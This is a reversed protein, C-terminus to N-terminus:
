FAGAWGGMRSSRSRARALRRLGLRGAACCGAVLGAAGPRRRLGGLRLGRGCAGRVASGDILLAVRSPQDHITGLGARRFAEGYDQNAQAKYFALEGRTVRKLRITDLEIVFELDRGAQRLRACTQPDAGKWCLTPGISPPGRKPGAREGPARRAGEVRGRCRRAPPSARGRAVLRRWGADDGVPHKGGADGGPDPAPAGVQRLRELVGPPREAIPEDRQFRELDQALAEATAYRREPTKHLCKLCITEVDRPVPREAAVAAGSGAPGSAARTEAATEGRFPPRGTLLEYLVAGLAYVDVAPGLAHTQGSAQEPAMYSPTGVRAGSLTLASEREFHRALGFDAIKPDFDSLVAGPRNVLHSNGGKSNPIPNEPKRQLLINAPKSRSPRHWGPAGCAGGRGAHGGTRRGAAPEAVRCTRRWVVARWTSWQSTLGAMTTAWTTSKSWTRIGCGRWRKQRACSVAGSKRAPMSGPSYCRSLSRAICACIVPRISSEWVAGASCRRWKMAVFGRSTPPERPGSADTNRDPGPTPFMADLEAEVLRMQRWRRRVEPLLDPCDACVEEPTRESDLMEDLLQEVQEPM